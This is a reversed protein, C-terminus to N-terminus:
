PSCVRRTNFRQRYQQTKETEPYREDPEYPYGSMAHFPLPAVTDPHATYLDMDKCFSDTKLIFSRRRGDPVPGFAAAPFRLTIEEGRGMIAYCDDTREVLEAVEGYRTYNGSMLKWAASPDVNDYDYLNPHRGDPSYERPYGFYHLDASDPAVETTSLSAQDLNVALFVRDWYLEMNSSVRIKRDGPLLKGTVDLTMAHQLGAPYGVERFLEVWGGERLVHISPAELRMGAQGAAFNSSSYGYEVWGHLFMVLRSDPALEGLGDGFDLEVFHERAFGAFRPDLETAGAYRRDVHRVEDLVDVGRDDVAAIPDITESFCFLEFPPPSCNVAMMENPLVETGDPHDVAILRAEDLYVVEELPELVQLVYQGNLPELRGIPLYETPDPPAYTQPALFYGLGGMGGFDAVFEFRSGNWAFLHPCSSAKRQIESLSAVHDAPLELEAQLVGDPWIIRLWDVKPNNGLGSHIRLPTMAVPGSPIGVVHQQFVAGTKVEVRAGIASNNSRSKKDTERTGALDVALWHNGPTVNEILMPKGDIPVLLLDCRGNATFDAALCSAQTEVTVAALLNGPDLELANLFRDRPWDNLLLTPGRSGDRRTADPIVIDLDGDNDMDAFQGGTGGFRGCSDAFGQDAQFRFGGRNLFLRLGDETFVLLDRYGDKNPDGSTAGLVRRVDLGTTETDFLRYKWVRDNVWGIPQLDGAPFIMLDIDRDNDFDDYLAAAIPTDALKLGLREAFDTFSGDRNNNYVATAAPLLEGTAPVSGAAYRFAAFDLDGDSDIDFLRACATFLDDDDGAPSPAPALNGEGDNEMLLDGGARGLWLDLDGDNDVDGFCPSVGQSAITAGATFVGSGDNLWISTGGQQDVATLCLDLDGDGDVDGAAVGPLNVAGGGWAWSATTADLHKVDPSFVVLQDPLDGPPDLPLSDASLATYYKGTTGYVKRVTFTGATLEAENLEKFRDFLPMADDSRKARQYQMALRYIASICGPDTAVVDELVKMGEEDRGVGILAEAYKYGVYPDQDDHKYVKEFCELAQENEGLHQHYIGLCFRAPLHDPESELIAEFIDRASDLNNQGQLNLQALGLNFRAAGWNPTRSVVKKLVDAAKAYDYRELLATGRNFQALTEAVSQSVSLPADEGEGEVTAPVDDVSTSQRCGAVALVGALLCGIVRAPSSVINRASRCDNPTSGNTM